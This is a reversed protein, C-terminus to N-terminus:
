ITGTDTPIYYTKKGNIGGEEVYWLRGDKTYQKGSWPVISNDKYECEYNKNGNDWYSTYAGQKWGDRYTVTNKLKGNLHYEQFLGDPVIKSGYVPDDIEYYPYTMQLQGSTYYGTYTKMVKGPVPTATTTATGSKGPVTYTDSYIVYGGLDYMLSIKDGPSAQVSFKVKNFSDTKGALYMRYPQGNLVVYLGNRIAPAKQWENTPIFDLHADVIYEDNVDPSKKINDVTARFRPLFSDLVSASARVATPILVSQQDAVVYQDINYYQYSNQYTTVYKMKSWRSLFWNEKALRIESGDVTYRLYGKKSTAGYVSPTSYEPFGNATVINGSSDKKWTPITDESLFKGNTFTAVDTMLGSLTQSRDWTRRYMIGPSSQYLSFDSYKQVALADTADEYPDARPHGDNRVHAPVTMDSMLHMTEGVSRWAMGYYYNERSTNELALRYYEKGNNFSYRQEYIDDKKLGFAWDRASMKPDGLSPGYYSEGLERLFELDTLWPKNQNKPDYFHRLSMIYEPEDASFGGDVIWDALPKQRYFEKRAFNEIGDQRDWAFGYCSAGDLSYNLRDSSTVASVPRDDPMIMTEYYDLAASNIAPHTEQNLYASACMPLLALALVLLISLIWKRAM